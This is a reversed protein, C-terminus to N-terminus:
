KNNKKVEKNIQKYDHEDDDSHHQSHRYVTSLM